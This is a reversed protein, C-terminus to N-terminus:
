YSDVFVLETNINDDIIIESPAMKQATCFSQGGPARCKEKSWVTCHSNANIVRHKQNEKITRNM